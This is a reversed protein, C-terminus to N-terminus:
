YPDASVLRGYWRGSIASNPDDTFGFTDPTSNADDYIRQVVARPTLGACQGSHICLAVVGAAHPAAFSTGSQLNYGGGKWTSNLCRGPAAVTHYKDLGSDSSWNSFAASSDDGDAECQTPNVSVGGPQGDFDAMANVTLVDNYAAPTTNTLEKAYNGGAAVFTVGKAVVRCIADHLPEGISADCDDDLDTTAGTRTMELSMNAVKIGLSTANANLWDLGCILDSLTGTISTGLVRVSYIRAGPAVGVVGAADDKAAIIGAVHTGHGQLDATGKTRPVCNMAGAINLDAHPGSGTDFVAVSVSVSGTGDGSATSSLDADIRNIGTPMSQVATGGGSGGGGPKGAGEVTEDTGDTGDTEFPVGGPDAMPSAEPPLSNEPLHAVGFERHVAGIPAPQGPSAVGSVLMDHVVYNVRVDRRLKRLKGPPVVASYGRLASRYVHGIKLGHREAHAKAAKGPKVGDELVVIFRQKLKPSPSAGVPSAFAFTVAAAAALAVPWRHAFSRRSVRSRSSM